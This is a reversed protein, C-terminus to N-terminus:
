TVMRVMQPSYTYSPHNLHQLIQQNLPHLDILLNRLIHLLHAAAPADVDFLDDEFIHPHRPQETVIQSDHGLGLPGRLRLDNRSGRIQLAGLQVALSRINQIDPGSHLYAKQLGEFIHIGHRTLLQGDNREPMLILNLLSQMGM